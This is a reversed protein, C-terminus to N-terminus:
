VRVTFFYSTYSGPELELLRGAKEIEAQTFYYVGTMKNSLSAESVGMADAFAKQSGFKEKIRGSLKSYDFTIKDM